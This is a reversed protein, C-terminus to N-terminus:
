ARLWPRDWHRGHWHRRGFGTFVWFWFLMFLLWPAGIIVLIAILAFVAMPALWMLPAAFVEPHLGPRRRPRRASRRQATALRELEGSPGGPLDEFLPDIDHEFRAAWAQTTREDYEDKTLRGAAYHDALTSVARDREADGIRMPSM